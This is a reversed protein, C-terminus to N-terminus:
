VSQLIEMGKNMKLQSYTNHKHVVNYGYSYYKLWHKQKITCIYYGKHMKISYICLDIFNKLAINTQCTQNHIRLLLSFSHYIEILKILARDLSYNSQCTHPIAHQIKTCSSKSTTGKQLPKRKRHTSFPIGPDQYCLLLIKDRVKCDKGNYSHFMRGAHAQHSNSLM